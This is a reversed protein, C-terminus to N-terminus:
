HSFERVRQGVLKFPAWFYPHPFSRMIELQASRLSAALDHSNLLNRYWREMLSATVRDQVLWQSVVLTAAGASLFAYTLGLIEDGASVQSTGSECASLTVLSGAFNLQSVDAATLWGDFLKLASFM